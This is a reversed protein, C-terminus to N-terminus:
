AHSTFLSWTAQKWSQKNSNSRRTDSEKGSKKKELPFIMLEKLFVWLFHTDVRRNNVLQASVPPPVAAARGSKNSCKWWLLPTSPTYLGFPNQTSLSNHSSIPWREDDHHVTVWPATILPWCPVHGGDRLDRSGVWPAPQRRFIFAGEVALLSEQATFWKWFHIAVTKQFSHQSIGRKYHCTKRQHNKDSLIEWSWFSVEEKCLFFTSEICFAFTNGSEEQRATM